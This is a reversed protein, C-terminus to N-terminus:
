DRAPRRRFASPTCSFRRRFAANFSSKSQFGSELAIQLVTARAYREDQLLRCAHALRHATVLDAFSCGRATRVARTIRRPSVGLTRAVEAVRVSPQLYWASQVIVGDVANALAAADAHDHFQDARRNTRSNGRANRASSRKWRRACWVVAAGMAVVAAAAVAAVASGLFM